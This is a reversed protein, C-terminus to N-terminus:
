IGNRVKAASRLNITEDGSAMSLTVRVVRVSAAVATVAGNEDLYTFSFANVDRALVDTGRKLEGAAFQFDVSAADIDTFTLRSATMTAIDAPSRIRRVEKIVRSIVFSADNMGSRKSQTFVWNDMPALLFVAVMSIAAGAVMGIVLEILTFGKKNMDSM